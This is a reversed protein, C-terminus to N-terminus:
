YKALVAAPAFWSYHYNVGARVIVGDYNIRTVPANAILLQGASANIGGLQITFPSVLSVPSSYIATSGLDYYLAEVKVSWNPLFMWEVGGGAIWGVQTNSHSGAGPILPFTYTGNFQAYNFPVPLAAANMGTLVGQMVGGHTASGHVGGYALGGTGYILLTPTFLYGLRGRVTGMWDVGTTVQGFGLASRTFNCGAWCPGANTLPGLPTNVVPPVGIPDLWAIHDQSAGAYSGSGRITSGQIDAELGAVFNQGWQYNYGIQGGGIFGSQNVNAVGSNALATSGNILGTGPLQNRPDLNNGATAVADLLPASVTTADSTGGFGGGANLGAYFGTWMPPPPPPVLVPAKHSPLDAALASGASLAMALALLSARNRMVNGKEPDHTEAVAAALGSRSM